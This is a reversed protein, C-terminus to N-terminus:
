MALEKLNTKILIVGMAIGSIGLLSGVAILQKADGSFLTEFEVFESLVALFFITHVTIAFIGFSIGILKNQM